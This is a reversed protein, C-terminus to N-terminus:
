DTETHQNYFAMWGDMVRYSSATFYFYIKRFFDQNQRKKM